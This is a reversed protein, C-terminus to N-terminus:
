TNQIRELGEWVLFNECNFSLFIFLYQIPFYVRGSHIDVERRKIIVPVSFWPSTQLYKLKGERRNHTKDSSNFLLAFPEAKAIDISIGFSLCSEHKTEQDSFSFAVEQSLLFSLENVSYGILASVTLYSNLPYTFGHDFVWSFLTGFCCIVGFSSQPLDIM